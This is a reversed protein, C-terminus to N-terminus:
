KLSDLSIDSLITEMSQDQQRTRPSTGLEKEKAMQDAVRDLEKLAQKKGAKGFADWNKFGGTLTWLIAVNKDFEVPDDIRSKTIANVPAGNIEAVPVVMAKFADDQIKKSVPVGGIDKTSDVSKRMTTIRVQYEKQRKENELKANEKLKDEKDKLSKTINKLARKSKLDEKGLSFIDEIEEQIDEDSFGRIKLDEAIVKKMLTEDGDLDDEKIKDFSFQEKKVNILDELDVGEDYNDLLDQVVKPLTSKYEDVRANIEDQVLEIIKEADNVDKLKDESLSFVGEESLAKALVQYSSFSSGQSDDSEDSPSNEKNDDGEDVEEKDDVDKPPDNKDVELKAEPLDEGLVSFDIGDFLGESAEKESMKEDIKRL